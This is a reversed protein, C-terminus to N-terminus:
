CAKTRTRRSLAALGLASVLLLGSAPVPILAPAPLRELTRETTGFTDIELDATGFGDLDFGPANTAFLLTETPSTTTLLDVFDVMITDGDVSRSVIPVAPFIDFNWGVTVELGAFGSITYFRVGNDGTGSQDTAGFKYAFVTNGAASYVDVSITATLKYLDQVVEFGDFGDRTETVSRTVSTLLTGFFAPDGDMVQADFLDSQDITTGPLLTLAHVPACFLFVSSMAGILSCRLM